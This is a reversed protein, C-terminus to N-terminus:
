SSKLRGEHILVTLCCIFISFLSERCNQEDSWDGCDNDSDCVKSARICRDTSPCKFLNTANCAVCDYICEHSVSTEIDSETIIKIHMCCLMTPQAFYM